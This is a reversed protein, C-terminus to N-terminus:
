FWDSWRSDIVDMSYVVFLNYLQAIIIAFVGVLLSGIFDVICM